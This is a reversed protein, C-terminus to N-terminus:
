PSYGSRVAPDQKCTGGKIINTPRVGQDKLSHQSLLRAYAALTDNDIEGNRWDQIDVPSLTALADLPSIPLGRCALSFTALLDADDKIGDRYASSACDANNGAIGTNQMNQTNHTTASDSAPTIGLMERWSM